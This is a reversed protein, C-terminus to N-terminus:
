ILLIPIKISGMRKIKTLDVTLIKGSIIKMRRTILKFTDSKIKILLKLGMRDSKRYNSGSPKNDLKV